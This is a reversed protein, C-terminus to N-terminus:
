YKADIVDDVNKQKVQETLINIFENQIEPSFYSIFEHSEKERYKTFYEKSFHDYKSLSEVRELFNRKNLSFANERNIIHHIISALSYHSTLYVIYSKEGNKQSPNSIRPM